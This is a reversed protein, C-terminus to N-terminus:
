CDHFWSHGVPRPGFQGPRTRSISCALGVLHTGGQLCSDPVPHLAEDTTGAQFGVRPSRNRGHVVVIFLRGRVAAAFREMDGAGTCSILYVMCGGVREMPLLRTM